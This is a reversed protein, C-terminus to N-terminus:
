RGPLYQILISSRRRLGDVWQQVFAARQQELIRARIVARTQELTQPAGGASLESLHEKYYRVIDDESVTAATAFRQEIYADIRMTDQIFQRVADRSTGTQGLVVEFELADKFRSEIAALRAAVAAAPPEPPAYREVETLMVRRDILRRLVAGVPDTSVDAPVLDFRQAARVDSLTIIHGEVVALLRDLLVQAPAAALIAALVASTLTATM